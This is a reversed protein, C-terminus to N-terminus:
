LFLDDVTLEKCKNRARIVEYEVNNRRVSNMKTMGQMSSWIPYTLNDIKTKFRVFNYGSQSSALWGIHPGIPDNSYCYVKLVGEDMAERIEDENEKLFTGYMERIEEKEGSLFFEQVLNSNGLESLFNSVYSRFIFEESDEDSYNEVFREVLTRMVVAVCQHTNLDLGIV